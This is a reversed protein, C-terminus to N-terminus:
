PRVGAQAQAFAMAIQEAVQDLAGQIKKGIMMKMMMNLEAKLVLRFRTDYPAVSQLQIWFAFDMPVGSGDPVIKVHKAPMKEEMLLNVTFGKAKFSCRDDSAEWNEVKEAVAPTLNRFDSILTFIQEAPLMIQHQKSEYQKM